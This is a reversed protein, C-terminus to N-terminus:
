RQALSVLSAFEDISLLIEHKDGSHMVVCCRDDLREAPMHHGTPTPPNVAKLWYPKISEIKSVDLYVAGTSGKFSIMPGDLILVM